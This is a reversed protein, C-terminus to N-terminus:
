SSCGDWWGRRMDQWWSASGARRTADTAETRAAVILGHQAEQESEQQEDDARGQQRGPRLPEGLVDGRGRGPQSDAHEREGQQQGTGLRLLRDGRHQGGALSM